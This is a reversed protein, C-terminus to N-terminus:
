GNLVMSAELLLAVTYTVWCSFIMAILFLILTHNNEGKYTYIEDDLNTHKKM